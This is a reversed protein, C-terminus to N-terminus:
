VANPNEKKPKGIKKKKEIERQENRKKLRKGVEEGMMHIDKNDLLSQIETPTLFHKYIDHLLAMVTAETSPCHQEAAVMIKIAARACSIVGWEM